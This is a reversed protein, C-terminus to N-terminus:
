TQSRNSIKLFPLLLMWPLQEVQLTNQYEALGITMEQQGKEPYARYTGFLYDWWPLNFGFNSNTEKTIISHHIRHMDPTVVFLRLLRDLSPPLGVNGHNFLSTSNLLIEFIIVATPPAGLLTIAIIKIGMSLLIEIPHFRLGTTVDFDRDCHHVKHLQWLTPLSHFIVHQFYIILDLAIVSLLVAQWETLSIVNFLGWGKASAIAAAGVAALPFVARLILTNLVVLSLNSFWRLRKSILLPRRPALIEWLTMLILTGLFFSLRILVENAM